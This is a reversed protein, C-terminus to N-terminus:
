LQIAPFLKCIFHKGDMFEGTTPDVVCHILKLQGVCKGMSCDGYFFSGPSADSLKMLEDDLAIAETVKKGTAAYPKSLDADEHCTRQAVGGLPGMVPGRSNDFCNLDAIEVVYKGDSRQILSHGSNVLISILSQADENTVQTYPSSAFSSASLGLLMAALFVFRSSVRQALSKKM